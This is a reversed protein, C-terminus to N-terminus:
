DDAGGVDALLQMAAARKDVRHALNADILQTWDHLQARIENSSLQFVDENVHDVIERREWYHHSAQSFLQRRFTILDDPAGGLYGWLTFAFELDYIVPARGYLSARKTAVGVCGAIIDDVHEDDEHQLQDEMSHALKIAYGQDPGPSGLRDGHPQGQEVVEAPRDAVWRDAVTEALDKRVRDATTVPVFDPQAM